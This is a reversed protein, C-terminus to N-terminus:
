KSAGKIVDKTNKVSSGLLGGIAALAAALGTSYHAGVYAGFGALAVRLM